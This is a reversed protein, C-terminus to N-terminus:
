TSPWTTATSFWWQCGPQRSATPVSAKGNSSCSRPNTTWASRAFRVPNMRVAGPDSNLQEDILQAVTRQGDGVICAVEGRAAAVLKGGVVLLRHEAGRRVERVIVSSGESRAAEFAARV